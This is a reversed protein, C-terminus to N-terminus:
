SLLSSIFTGNGLVSTKLSQTANVKLWRISVTQALCHCQHDPLFCVSILANKCHMGTLGTRVASLSILYYWIWIIFTWGAGTESCLLKPKKLKLNQTKGLKHKYVKKCLRELLSTIESVRGSSCSKRFSTQMHFHCVLTTRHRLWLLAMTHVSSLYKPPSLVCFKLVKKPKKGGKPLPM